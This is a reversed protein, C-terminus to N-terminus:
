KFITPDFPEKNENSLGQKAREEEILKQTREEEVKTKSINVLMGDYWNM